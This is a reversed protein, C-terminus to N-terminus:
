GPSAGFFGSVPIARRYCLQAPQAAVSASSKAAVDQKAGVVHCALGNMLSENAVLAEGSSLERCEMRVPAAAQQQAVTAGAFGVFVLVGITTKL